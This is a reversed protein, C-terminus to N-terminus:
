PAPFKRLDLRPLHDPLDSENADGPGTRDIAALAVALRERDPHDIIVGPEPADTAPGWRQASLEPWSFLPPNENGELRDSWWRRLDVGGQRAETWDKGQPPRVRRCRAPWKAASKDGADDADHATYWPGYRVLRGLISPEPHASASGLTVVVALGALERGLLLADFEGEVIVLPLGPRTTGFTGRFTTPRDRFAEAYKPTSGDPQRISIKTLRGGDFWPIVVGRATWRGGAATALRASPVWGLKAARITAPTLHRM